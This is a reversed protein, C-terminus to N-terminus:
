KSVCPNKETDLKPIKLKADEQDAEHKRKANVCSKREKNDDDTISKNTDTKELKDAQQKENDSKKEDTYEASSSSSMNISIRFM